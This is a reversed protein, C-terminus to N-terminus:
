ALFRRPHEGSLGPRSVTPDTDRLRVLQPVREADQQNATTKATTM